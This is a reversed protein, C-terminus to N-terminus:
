RALRTGEARSGLLLLLASLACALPAVLLSYRMQEPNVAVGLM